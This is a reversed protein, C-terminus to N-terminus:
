VSHAHAHPYADTGRLTHRGEQFSGDGVFAAKTKLRAIMQQTNLFYFIMALFM